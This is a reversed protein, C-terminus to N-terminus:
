NLIVAEISSVEDGSDSKTNTSHNDVAFSHTICSVLMLLVFLIAAIKLAIKDRM